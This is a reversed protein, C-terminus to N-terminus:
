IIILVTIMCSSRHKVLLPESFAVLKDRERERGESYANALLPFCEPFPSLDWSSNAFAVRLPWIRVWNGLPKNQKTKNTRLFPWSALSTSAAFRHPNTSRPLRSRPSPHIRQDADVVSSHGVHITLMRVDELLNKTWVPHIPRHQGTQWTM